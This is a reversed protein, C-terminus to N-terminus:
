ACSRHRARLAVGAYNALQNMPASDVDIFLLKKYDKFDTISTLTMGGGLQWEVRGNIGYTQVFGNHDFAFDSSTNTRTWGSRHLSSTEV